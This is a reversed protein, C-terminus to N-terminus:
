FLHKYTLYVDNTQLKGLKLQYPYTNGRTEFVAGGLNVYRYGLGIRDQMFGTADKFGANIKSFNFGYEVGLGLQYALNSNTHSQFAPLTVPGTGNTPTEAYNSIQVWSPGVGLKVFPLFKGIAWTFQAEAMLRASNINFTYNYFSAASGNTPTQVSQGRYNYTSPMDYIGLGLAIAPINGMPAFEYGGQIAFLSTTATGSNTSYTDTSTGTFITQNKKGVAAFTAGAEAGVYPHGQAFTVASLATLCILLGRQTHKRFASPYSTM